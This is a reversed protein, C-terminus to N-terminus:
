DNKAEIKTIVFDVIEFFNEFNLYSNNFFTTNFLSNENKSLAKDCLALVLIIIYISTRKENKENNKEFLLPKLFPHNPNFYVVFNNDSESNNIAILDDLKIDEKIFIKTNAGKVLFYIEDSNTYDCYEVNTEIEEDNLKKNSFFVINEKQKYDAEGVNKLLEWSVIKQLLDQLKKWVYDLKDKLYKDDADSLLFKSKNQDPAEINTLDIEGCMRRWTPDGGSFRTVRGFNICSSEWDQENPGHNIARDLHFTTLGSWKAKNKLTSCIIGYKLIATKGSTFEVEITSELNEYNQLKHCFDKLIQNGSEDAKLILEEVDEKLRKQFTKKDFYDKKFYYKEFNKLNFTQIESPVVVFEKTESNSDANLPKFVIEMGDKNESKLLKKYRWGLIEVIKEIKTEDDIFTKEYVNHIEIRTGSLSNNIKNKGSYYSTVSVRESEDKDSTKLEVYFENNDRQKTYIVCDQGYWFIALKMGVGYQNYQTNNKGKTNYPQLANTLEEEDMGGANDTVVIKKNQEKRNDLLISIKLGNVSDNNWKKYSSISNDIFESLALWRNTKQNKYGKLVDYTLELTKSTM